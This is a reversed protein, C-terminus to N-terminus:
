RRGTEKMPSTGIFELSRVQGLDLKQSEGTQPESGLYLVRFGSLLSLRRQTGDRMLFLANTETTERIASISDLWVSELSNRENKVKVTTRSCMSASCGIGELKVTRITGDTM